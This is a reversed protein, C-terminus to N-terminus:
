RFQILASKLLLMNEASESTVSQSKRAYERAMVSYSKSLWGASNIEWRAKDKFEKEGSETLELETSQFKM